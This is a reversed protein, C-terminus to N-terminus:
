KGKVYCTYSALVGSGREHHPIVDAITLREGTPLVIQDLKKPTVDSAAVQISFGNTGYTNVITEAAKSTSQVIAKLNKVTQPPKAQHHEIPQGTVGLLQKFEVATLM